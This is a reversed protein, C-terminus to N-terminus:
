PRSGPSIPLGRERELLKQLNALARWAIKVDHYLGDTDITGAEALHRMLSDLEDGSKSRAWHLPEGPNHKDNGIQSLRAVEALADPFYRLLGSYLPIAKRKDSDTELRAKVALDPMLARHQRVWGLVQGRWEEVYGDILRKDGIRPEFGLRLSTYPRGIGESEQGIRESMVEGYSYHSHHAGLAFDGPGVDHEAGPHRRYRYETIRQGPKETLDLTALTDM